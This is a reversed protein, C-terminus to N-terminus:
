RCGARQYSAIMAERIDPRLSPYEAHLKTLTDCAAKRENIAILSNALGLLADPAHVGTRARNYSDDYAIAAQSYQRQGMLAQALLFQADYARPSARSGALVERAAQEAAPYDRRALAANGEQMALEPPRRVPVGPQVPPPGALPTPQPLLALNGPPPAPPVPQMPAPGPRPPMAAQPNQAQFAMDDIRKGLEAGQRQVTNQTEDIRGRLQRVQEELSDVRALLQAVLDSGGSPPPNAGRGLYTPSGGGRGSQDQLSQVQRRLELIQNQLAIGERSEVQAQAPRGSSALLVPLMLAVLLRKASPYTM